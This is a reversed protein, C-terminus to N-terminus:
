QNFLEGQGEKYEKGYKRKNVKSPMDYRLHCRQCLAALREDSVDWNSADHDLHAITLVVKTPKAAAEELEHGESTDGLLERAEASWILGENDQYAALAEFKGRVIYAYNDVGCFKCCHNERELIRHRTEHWNPPYAKYNIPM